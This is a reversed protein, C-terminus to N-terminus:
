PVKTKRAVLILTGGITLDLELNGCKGFHEHALSGVRSLRLVFEILVSHSM